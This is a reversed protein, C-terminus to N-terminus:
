RIYGVAALATAAGQRAQRAERRRGCGARRRHWAPHRRRPRRGGRRAESRQGVGHGLRDLHCGHARLLLQRDPRGRVGRWGGAGAHPLRHQRAAARRQCRRPLAHARAACPAREFCRTRRAPSAGASGQPSVLQESDAGGALARKSLLGYAARLVAAVVAVAYYLRPTAAAAGAKVAAEAAAKVAAAAAARPRRAGREVDAAAPAAAAGDAAALISEVVDYDPAASSAARKPRRYVRRRPPPTFGAAAAAHEAAESASSLYLLMIAAVGAAVGAIQAARLQEGLLVWGGLVVGVTNLRYITSGASADVGALAEILLINALALVLALAPAWMLTHLRWPQLLHMHRPSGAAALDLLLQLLSWSFGITSVYWGVSLRLSAYKRFVIDNLAACVLAGLAFVIPLVM